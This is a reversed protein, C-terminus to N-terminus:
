SVLALPPVATLLPLQAACACAPATVDGGPARIVDIAASNNLHPVKGCAM